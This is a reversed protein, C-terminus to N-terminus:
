PQNKRWKRFELYNMAKIAEIEGRLRENEGKLTEIEQIYEANDTEASPLLDNKLGNIAQMINYEMQKLDASDHGDTHSIPADLLEKAKDEGVNRKAIVYQFCTDLPYDNSNYMDQVERIISIEADTWLRAQKRKQFEHGYKELTKAYNRVTPVSVQLIESVEKTLYSM